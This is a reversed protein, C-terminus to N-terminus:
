KEYYNDKCWDDL